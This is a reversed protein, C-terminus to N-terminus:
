IQFKCIFLTFYLLFYLLFLVFGSRPGCVGGCSGGASRARTSDRAPRVGKGPEWTVLQEKKKAVVRADHGVSGLGGLRPRMKNALDRRWVRRDPRKLNQLESELRYIATGKEM